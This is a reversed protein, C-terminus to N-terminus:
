QKILAKLKEISMAPSQTHLMAHCNPCVPRLDQIPNVEYQAGIESLPKIHHVHIFGCGIEGYTGEFDFGCVTCACGHYEICKQRAKANREYANVSVRIAAGELYTEPSEGEEPSLFTTATPETLFAPTHCLAYPRIFGPAINVGSSALVLEQPAHGGRIPRLRDVEYETSAQNIEVRMLLGWYLLKSCDKADGLIVPVHSGEASAEKLYAKGKAWVKREMRILPRREMAIADLVVRSVITYVCFPYLHM